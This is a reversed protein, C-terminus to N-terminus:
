AKSPVSFYSRLLACLADIELPKSAHANMGSALSKQRDEEFANASLAVIPVTRADDRRLNRIKRTATLGDMVPMLVDMLIVDFHQPPSAAFREVAEKGNCAAEVSFGCAKLQERAIEMNLENDEVLLLNKGRFDFLDEQPREKPANGHLERLGDLLFTRFFPKRIFGPRDDAMAEPDPLRGGTLALRVCSPKPRNRLHRRVADAGPLAAALLVTGLPEGGAASAELHRIAESADSAFVTKIGAANLIRTATEGDERNDVVLVASFTGGAVASPPPAAVAGLPLVITFSSGRGKESRVSITGDMLEVLSKSISLGLGSGGYQNVIETTEQEFINFIRTLGDPSIGIGTDSVTFELVSTRGRRTLKRVALTVRGHKETFKFANSLLNVFIQKLHLADGNFHEEEFPEVRLTFDLLRQEAEGSFLDYLDYLFAPLSFPQIALQLKGNEIRSFDLVDNILSLLYRAAAEIKAHCNQLEKADDQRHIALRNMGIVANLPTRLEHSMRSLFRSKSESAAQARTLLADKVERENRELLRKYETIDIIVSYYAPHSASESAHSYGITTLLTRVEGDRRRIRMELLQTQHTRKTKELAAAVMAMDQPLIYDATGNLETKFQEKTYGILKLFTDNYWLITLFGDDAMQCIGGPISGVISAVKNELKHVKNKFNTIDFSLEIRSKRGDWDILKDHISFHRGLYKNEYEWIYVNNYSLYRNTCFSCPADTGQIVEYCKRYKYNKPNLNLLNIARENMYLLEYTHVDAVYLFEGFVDLLREQGNGNQSM